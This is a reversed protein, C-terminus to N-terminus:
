KGTLGYKKGISKWKTNIENQSIIQTGNYLEPYQKVDQIFAIVLVCLAFMYAFMESM